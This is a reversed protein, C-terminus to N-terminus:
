KRPKKFTTDKKAGWKLKQRAIKIKSKKKYPM